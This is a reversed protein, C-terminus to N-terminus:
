KIGYPKKNLYKNRQELEVQDIKKVKHVYARMLDRIKSQYNSGCVNKFDELEEKNIRFTITYDCRKENPRIM